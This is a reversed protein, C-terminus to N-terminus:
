LNVNIKNNANASTSQKKSPKNIKNKNEDELM